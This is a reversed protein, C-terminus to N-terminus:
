STFKNIENGYQEFGQKPERSFWDLRPEPSVERVLEYFEDPKRSHERVPASFDLRKGLKLLSLTGIRGFLCHETSYMWSFPTFGVNKVWTMLCQYDVGWSQFLEFAYPLYKQTAWLYIHCGDSMAMKGIPLDKIESLEMTPYDFEFQNPREDRLIKEVPWPPDIILTRYQKDPLPITGLQRKRYAALISQTARPSLDPYKELIKATEKGKEIDRECPKPDKGLYKLYRKRWKGTVPDKFKEVLRHYVKGNKKLKETFAM